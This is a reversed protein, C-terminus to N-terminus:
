SARSRQDAVVNREIARRFQRTMEALPGRARLENPALGTYRKLQNRFATGSAFDLELAIHDVLRGRDELLVAAALMRCWGLMLQPPVSQSLQCREALTKRHLGLARAAADVTLPEHAHRLGYAVIPRVRDPTGPAIDDWLSKSRRRTAAEMIARRVTLPTQRDEDFLLAQVGSRALRLFDDASGHRRSALGVVAVHPHRVLASEIFAETDEGDADKLPALMVLAGARDLVNDCESM